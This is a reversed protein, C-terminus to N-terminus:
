GVRAVPAPTNTGSVIGQLGPLELYGQFYDSPAGSGTGGVGGTSVYGPVVLQVKRFVRGSSVVNKGGDRFFASGSTALLSSITSGFVGGGTVALSTSAAWVATSMTPADDTGTNVLVKSILNGVNVFFANNTQVQKPRSVLSTM